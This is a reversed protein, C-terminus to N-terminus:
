EPTGNDPRINEFYRRVTDRHGLPLPESDLVAEAESRFKQYRQAYARAASQEGEPAEIVESESPGEGQVGSLPEEQRNSDLETKDGDNPTGSEGSGWSNSPSDSKAVGKGGNKNGRCAGKCAALRNLQCAMCEGIKKCNGQKKCLGALKKLGGKCQGDNKKELGERIEGAADSLEGKQGPPLKSLFKKLDDAVARREKDSMASPDIAKLEEGAEDYRENEMAAAARKMAESSQLAEALGKLQADTMELRMADRAEAVAQEMESLKAMLDREDIAEAEMEDILEELRDTLSEIEPVDQEEQLQRIESLMTDRLLSAQDVALAVPRVEVSEGRRAEDFMVIGVTLLAMAAASFLAPRNAEIPVCDESRVQRLHRRAEDVQMQRVPEPDSEFQMATIARDKIAYFADIRGAARAPSVRLCFGVMGGALSTGAVVLLLWPWAIPTVAAGIGALVAATFCGVAAGTSAAHISNRRRMRRRVRDVIVRVSEGVANGGAPYKTASDSAM